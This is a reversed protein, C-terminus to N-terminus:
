NIRIVSQHSRAGCLHTETYTSRADYCVDLLVEDLTSVFDWPKVRGQGGLLLSATSLTSAPTEEPTLTAFTM